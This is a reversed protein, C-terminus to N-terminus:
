EEGRVLEVITPRNEKDSEKSEGGHEGLLEDFFRGVLRPEASVAVLEAESVTRGRYLAVFDTLSKVEV